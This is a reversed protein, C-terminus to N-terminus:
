ANTLLKDNCETKPHTISDVRAAHRVVYGAYSQAHRRLAGPRIVLDYELRGSQIHIIEDGDNVM